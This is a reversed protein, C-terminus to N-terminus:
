FLRPRDIATASTSVPTLLSNTFSPAQVSRPAQNLVSRDYNISVQQEGRALAALSPTEQGFQRRYLWYGAVVKEVYDRTEKAPLSEIFLFPDSDGGVRDLTKLVAQPGGNYAAIVKLLDDGVM